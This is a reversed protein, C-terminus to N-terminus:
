IDPSQAVDTLAYLNDLFSEDRLLNIVEKTEDCACETKKHIRLFCKACEAYTGKSMAIYGNLVMAGLRAVDATIKLEQIVQQALSVKKETARIEWLFKKM